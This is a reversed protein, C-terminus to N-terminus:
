HWTRGVYARVEADLRHISGLYPSVHRCFQRDACPHTAQWDADHQYTKRHEDEAAHFAVHGLLPGGRRLYGRYYSCQKSRCLEPDDPGEGPPSLTVIMQRLLAEIRLLVPLDENRRTRDTWAQRDRQAVM